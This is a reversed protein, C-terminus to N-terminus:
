SFTLPSPYNEPKYFPMFIEFHINHQPSCTSFIHFLYKDGAENINFVLFMDGLDSIIVSMFSKRLIGAVAKTLFRDGEFAM